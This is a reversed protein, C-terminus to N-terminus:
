GRALPFWMNHRQLFEKKGGTRGIWNAHIVKAVDTVPDCGPPFEAREMLVFDVTKNGQHDSHLVQNFSIQDHKQSPDCGQIWDQFLKIVSDTPQVHMQCTCLYWSKPWFPAQGDDTVYLDHSGMSAIVDWLGATWVADIDTYHVTCGQQLLALMHDPKAKTVKEYEETGYDGRSSLEALHKLDVTNVRQVQGDFDVFQSQNDMLAFPRGLQEVISTDTILSLAEDDEAVVLLVDDDTLFKASTVFWNTLFDFYSSSFSIMVIRKQPFPGCSPSINPKSYDRKTLRLSWATVVGVLLRLLMM